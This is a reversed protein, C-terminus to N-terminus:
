IYSLYNEYLFKAPIKINQVFGVWFGSVQLGLGPGLVRNKQFNEFGSGSGYSSM